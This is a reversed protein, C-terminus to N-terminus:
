KQEPIRSSQGAVLQWRDERWVLVDTFRSRSTVPQGDKMRHFTLRANFVATGGYVNVHMEDLEFQAESKKCDKEGALDQERTIIEGQATTFIFETAEVQRFLEYDCTLNARVIEHELQIIDKKKQEASNQGAASVAAILILFLLRLM